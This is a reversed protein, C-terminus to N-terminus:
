AMEMDSDPDSSVDITERGGAAGAAAAGNRGGQQAVPVQRAAQPVFQDASLKAYALAQVCTICVMAIMAVTRHM